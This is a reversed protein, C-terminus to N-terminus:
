TDMNGNEVYNGTERAQEITAETALFKNINSKVEMPNVILSILCMILFMGSVIMSIAGIAGTNWESDKCLLLLGIGFLSILSILIIM